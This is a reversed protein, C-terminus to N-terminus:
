KQSLVTISGGNGVDFYPYWVGEGLNGFTPAINWSGNLGFTVTRADLDLRINLANRGLPQNFVFTGPAAYQGRVCGTSLDVVHMHDTNSSRGNTAVLLYRSVGVLTNAGTDNGVSWEYVGKSWGCGGIASLSIVSKPKGGSAYCFRQGNDVVAGPHYHVIVWNPPPLPPKILDSLGSLLYKDAELKLLRKEEAALARVDLTGYVMYRVIHAFIHADCELFLPETQVKWRGCVYTAFFSGPYKRLTDATLTFATGCANFRVEDMPKSMLDACLGLSVEWEAHTAKMATDTASLLDGLERHAQTYTSLQLRVQKSVSEFSILSAGLATYSADVAARKTAIPDADDVNDRANKM